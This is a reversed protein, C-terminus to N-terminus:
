TSQKHVDLFHTIDQTNKMQYSYKNDQWMQTLLEQFIHTIHM